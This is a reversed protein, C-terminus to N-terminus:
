GTFRPTIATSNPDTTTIPEIPSPAPTSSSTTTPALTTSTSSTSTTPPENTQLVENQVAVFTRCAQGRLSGCAPRDAPVNTVSSVLPLVLSSPMAGGRAVDHSVPLSGFAPNEFSWLPLDRGPTDVTIRLRSGARFPHSVPDLPVQLNVFQGSPLPQYHAADYFHEIFTGESRAQDVTRDGARLHGTQVEVEKGDPYVETLVVELNADTATSRLWLDVYGSGAMVVNQTLPPTLYSLGKGQALPEWNTDVHPFLFDYAGTTPAYTKAGADPDFQFRDISDYASPADNLSENPGFYWRKPQAAPPPWAPFTTEFRAVPAGPVSPMGAGSEYLVRVPPEAEYAAKAGAYNGAFTPLFRDPEFSLGAVGFETEFVSPAFARVIPPVEPVQGGVEMQLFEGWRSLVLPTYGDPHRGNFLTFKRVPANVFKDLMIAFRSGVQEDQWGGTLYVPVDIKKVLDSLKRADADAPRFELSRGFKEFDINQSRITQNAACTTDGHNIRKKAWDQGGANAERDREALWQKTFGGNYVGGPWQQYWPDEIVSLPSIAALHPPRTSAVYLQSIGPYSLGVMGVKGGKVWPQRAITELVDYGDAHQAPNFVDFAGGSCGTGRMNVGVTAFGFINALRTGPQPNDPDSPSYGSYEMVTPYPGDGFVRPDPFRVMVSLQIGDRVTVYGFGETAAHGALPGGTIQWPVGNLSQGDYLSTPPHDDVGIVTFTPSVQLPSATEDVIRYTGPKLTNGDSTPMPDGTGTTYTLYNTPLYSFHAQGKSDAVLTLLRENTPSILTLHAGAPAGTVTAIEVGPRVSFTAAVSGTLDITGGGAAVAPTTATTLAVSSCVVTLLLAIARGRHTRRLTM